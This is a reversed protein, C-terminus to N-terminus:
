EDGGGIGHAREIARAFAVMEADTCPESYLRYIEEDTLPKRQPPLHFYLPTGLPCSHDFTGDAIAAPEARRCGPAHDAWTCAADCIDPAPKDGALHGYDQTDAPTVPLDRSHSATPLPGSQEQERLAAEIAAHMPMRDSVSTQSLKTGGEFERAADFEDTV